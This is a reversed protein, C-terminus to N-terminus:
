FLFLFQSSKKKYGFKRESEHIDIKFEEEEKKAPAEIEEKKKDKKYFAKNCLGSIRLMIRFTRSKEIDKHTEKLLDLSYVQQDFWLHEVTMKNMTLTGTKDSAICTASGLTEITELKKIYVNEKAMRKAVITLCSIVTAPLGKLVYIFIL